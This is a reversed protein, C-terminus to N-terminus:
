PVFPTKVTLNFLFAEAPIQSINISPWFIWKIWPLRSTCLSAKQQLKFSVAIYSPMRTFLLWIISRHAVAFLLSEDSGHPFCFCRNLRSSCFFGCSRTMSSFLCKLDPRWVFRTEEWGELNVIFSFNLTQTFWQTIVSALFLVSITNPVQKKINNKTWETARFYTIVVLSHKSRKTNHEPNQTPRSLGSPQTPEKLLMASNSGFRHM